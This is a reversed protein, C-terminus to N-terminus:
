KSAYWDLAKEEIEKVLSDKGDIYAEMDEPYRMALEAKTQGYQLRDSRHEMLYDRFALHRDIDQNGLEYLHVHHSRQDGGKRFFRRGTLGNEGLAEYGLEKMYENKQDVLSLDKVVPMIDIVPKAKLGEVATSGIHHVEIMNDGYVRELKQAELLFLERWIENFEQVEVKRM